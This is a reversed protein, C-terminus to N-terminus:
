IRRWNQTPSSRYFRFPAASNRPVVVVAMPGNPDAQGGALAVVVVSFGTTFRNTNGDVVVNAQGGNCLPNGYAALFAADTSFPPLTRISDALGNATADTAVGAQLHTRLSRGFQSFFTESSAGVRVGTYPDPNVVTSDFPRGDMLLAGATGLSPAGGGTWTGNVALTVSRGSSVSAKQASYIVGTVEDTVARVSNGARDGLTMVMALSLIGIISLVVLLEILSYGPSSERKRIM